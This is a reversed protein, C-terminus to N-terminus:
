KRRKRSKDEYMEQDAQYKWDSITKIKGDRERLYSGGKAVSLLSRSNRNYLQIERELSAYWEQEDITPNKLIVCFEDGGIRFFTGHEGFTNKICKSTAIILEDGASHGYQDNTAKLFNIDIFILLADRLAAAETQLESMYEDFARRNGIGTLRDEKALRRLVDIETKARLNTAATLIIGRLLLVVFILIGAEFISSYYYIELGWYLIMALVGSAALIIFAFVITQIEPTKNVKHERLIIVTIIVCGIVLLVHTVLLMEIYEFYGLYNLICQVIMNIYFLNILVSLIRYKGIHETNRIFQLMPVAMLMFSCFSITSNIHYHNSYQQLVSTDTVCWVSCAILFLAVNIFRRDIVHFRKLYIGTGIAFASLAIMIISIGLPFIAEKIEKLILDRERAIYVKPLQYVEGGSNHFELALIGGDRIVPLKETCSFNSKMQDNRPFKEDNYQYILEDDYFIEVNYQAAKLSIVQGSDEAKLSENYLVLSEEEMSNVTEPLSVEIRKGDKIYYWGDALINIENKEVYCVKNSFFGFIMVIVLFLIVVLIKEAFNGKIEKTQM